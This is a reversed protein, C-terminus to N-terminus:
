APVPVLLARARARARSRSRLHLAAFVVVLYPAFVAFGHVGAVFTLPLFWLARM